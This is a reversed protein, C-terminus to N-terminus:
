SQARLIVRAVGDAADRAIVAVRSTKRAEMTEIAEVRQLLAHALHFADDKSIDLLTRRDPEVPDTLTLEVYRPSTLDDSVIALGNAEPTWSLTRTRKRNNKATM